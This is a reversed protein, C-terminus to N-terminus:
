LVQSEVQETRVDPRLGNSRRNRPQLECFQDVLNEIVSLYTASDAGEPSPTRTGIAIDDSMLKLEFDGGAFENVYTLTQQNNEQLIRIEDVSVVKPSTSPAPSRTIEASIRKCVRLADRRRIKALLKNVVLMMELEELSLSRNVTDQGSALVLPEGRDIREQQLLLDFFGGILNSRELDFLRLIINPKGLVGSYMETVRAYPSRYKELFHGFSHRYLRWKVAQNYASLAHDMLHRLYYIVKVQLGFDQFIGCLATLAEPSLAAFGESSYIFSRGVEQQLRKKLKASASHATQADPAWIGNKLGTLRKRGTRERVEPPVIGRLSVGNGSTPLGAQARSDSPAQPYVLGYSRLLTRNSVLAAQIASTGTKGGGIHLYVTGSM